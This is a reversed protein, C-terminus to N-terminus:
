KRSTLEHFLDEWKKMINEESFDEAKRRAAESMGERLQEDQMLKLMADSLAKVDGCPVIYGNKGDDILDRPGCKFSYSVMPLGASLAELMVMSLGEFRSPMVLFASQAYEALINDTPPLIQASAEIGLSLVQQKLSFELPGNGFIKLHWSSRIEAPLLAWADLLQGFGKEIVFRGAAIVTHSQGPHALLDTHTTANAIVHLGPMGDWQEKDEQTLVVLVQFRKARQWDQWTRYRAMLRHFGHANPLRLFRQNHFEMVKPSGDHMDAAVWAETPYHILTIDPREQQLVEELKRRHERRKRLTVWTRELPNRSYDDWYNLGLDIMKVSKPFDFYPRGDKQDTTVIVIEYGGKNVLWRVKNYLVRVSGGFVATSALHFLLKM